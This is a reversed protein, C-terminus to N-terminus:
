FFLGTPLPISFVMRFLYFVLGTVALCVVIAELIKKNGLLFTMIVMTLFTTIIFGFTRLLLGYTIMLVLTVLFVLLDKGSLTDELRFYEKNMNLLCAFSSIILLFAAFRPFLAVGVPEGIAKSPFSASAVWVFLGLFICFLYFFVEVTQIKVKM